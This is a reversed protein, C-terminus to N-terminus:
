SSDETETYLMMLRREWIGIDISKPRLMIQKIAVHWRYVIRLLTPTAEAVAVCTLMNWTSCLPLGLGYLEDFEPVGEASM